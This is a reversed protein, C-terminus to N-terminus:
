MRHAVFARYIGRGRFAPLVSSGQLYGVDDFVRLLGAGVPVGDIRALYGRYSGLRHYREVTRRINAGQAESM